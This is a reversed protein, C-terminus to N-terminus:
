SKWPVLVSTDSPSSLFLMTSRVASSARASCSRVTSRARSALRPSESRLRSIPLSSAVPRPMTLCVRERWCPMGVSLALCSMRKRLSALILAWPLTCPSSSRTVPLCRSSRWAAMARSLPFCSSTFSSRCNTLKRSQDGAACGGRSRLSCRRHGGRGRVGLGEVHHGEAARLVPHVGLDHQPGQLVLPVGQHLLGLVGLHDDDVGAGEDSGGLLLGDVGNQLHGLVLLGSAAVR